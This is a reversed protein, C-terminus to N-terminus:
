SEKQECRRAILADLSVAGAGHHILWILIVIYLYESFAFLDTIEHIDGFKATLIAVIMTAILPVAAIRTFLGLLMCLGGVLEVSAVFPAQLHAAPIGLSMFFQTVKDLHHLKGWGSQIFIGALTLRSILPPIWHWKELFGLVTRRLKYM